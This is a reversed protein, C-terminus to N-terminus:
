RGPRVRVLPARSATSAPVTVRYVIGADVAAVFMAGDPAVATETEPVRALARAIELSEPPLEFEDAVIGDGPPWELRVFTALAPPARASDDHMERAALLVYAGGDPQPTVRYELSDGPADLLLSGDPQLRLNHAGTLGSAIVSLRAEDNSSVLVALPAPLPTLTPAETTGWALLSLGAIRGVVRARVNDNGASVRRTQGWAAGLGSPRRPDDRDSPAAHRAPPNAIGHAV